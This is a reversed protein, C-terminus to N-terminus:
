IAISSATASNATELVEENSGGTTIHLLTYDLNKKKHYIKEHNKMYERRIPSYLKSFKKSSIRVLIKTGPSSNNVIRQFVVNKPKVQLAIHVISFDNVDIKSGDQYKVKVFESLNLKKINKIATGIVEEDNDIVCVNAGTRRHLEIATCPCPGGGICLIRDTPKIEALKIENEVVNDYYRQFFGYTWPLKNVIYEIKQTINTIFGKM